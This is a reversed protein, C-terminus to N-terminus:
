LTLPFALEITEYFFQRIFNINSILFFKQGIFRQAQNSAEGEIVYINPQTMIELCSGECVDM